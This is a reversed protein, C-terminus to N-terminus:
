LIIRTSSSRQSKAVIILISLSNSVRLTRLQMIIKEFMKILVKHDQAVITEKLLIYNIEKNDNLLKDQILM